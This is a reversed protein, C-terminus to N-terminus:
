ESDEDDAPGDLMEVDIVDVAGSVADEAKLMADHQSVARVKVRLQIEYERKAM